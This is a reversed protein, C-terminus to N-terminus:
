TETGRGPEESSFLYGIFGSCDFVGRSCFRFCARQTFFYMMIEIFINFVWKVRLLFMLKVTSGLSSRYYVSHTSFPGNRRRCLLADRCPSPHSEVGGAREITKHVCCLCARSRSENIRLKVSCATIYFLICFNGNLM